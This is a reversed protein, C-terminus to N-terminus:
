TDCVALKFPSRFFSVFFCFFFFFLSVTRVWDGRSSTLLVAFHRIAGTSPGFIRPPPLSKWFPAFTSPPRAAFPCGKPCCGRSPPRQANPCANPRIPFGRIWWSQWARRTAQGTGTVTLCKREKKNERKDATPPESSSQTCTAGGLRHLRKHTSHYTCLRTLKSYQPFRKELAPQLSGWTTIKTNTFVPPSVSAVVGQGAAFNLGPSLLCLEADLFLREHNVPSVDPGDDPLTGTIDDQHKRTARHQKTRKKKENESLDTIVLLPLEPHKICAIKGWGNKKLNDRSNGKRTDKKKEKKGLFYPPIHASLLFKRGRAEDINYSITGSQTSKFGGRVCGSM